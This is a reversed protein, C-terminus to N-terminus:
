CPFCDKAQNDIASRPHNIKLRRNDTASVAEYHNQLQKGLLVMQGGIWNSLRSFVPNGPEHNVAMKALRYNEAERIFENRKELALFEYYQWNANFM